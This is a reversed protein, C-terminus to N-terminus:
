PDSRWPLSTAFRATLSVELCGGVMLREFGTSVSGFREKSEGIGFRLSM